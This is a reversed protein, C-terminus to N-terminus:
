APARVGGGRARPRSRKRAAESAHHCRRRRQCRRDSRGAAPRLPRGALEHDDLAEGRLALASGATGARGAARPPRTACSSRPRGRRPWAQRRAARGAATSGDARPCPPPTRAPSRAGRRLCPGRTPRSRGPCRGSRTHPPRDPPATGAARWARPMDGDSPRRGRAAARARQRPPQGEVLRDALADEAREAFPDHVELCQTRGEFLVAEVAPGGHLLVAQGAVRRCRTLM